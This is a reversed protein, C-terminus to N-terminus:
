VGLQQRLAALFAAWAALAADIGSADQAAKVQEKRLLRAARIESEAGLWAQGTAIIDDAAQQATWESGVSNKADLWSEVYAPVPGEYGAAAFTQAQALATQYETVREGIVSKRLADADADIQVIGSAKATSVDVRVPGCYDETWEWGDQVDEPLERLESAIDPFAAQAESLTMERTFHSLVRGERVQGLTTM